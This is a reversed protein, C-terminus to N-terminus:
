PAASPNKLRNLDSNVKRRFNDIADLREKHEKGLRETKVIRTNYRNLKDNSNEVTSELQRIKKDIAAQQNKLNNLTKLQQTLNATMTATQTLKQETSDIFTKVNNLSKTHSQQKAELTEIRRKSKKWVNDWLKRIETDMERIKVKMAVGSESMSEDTVSLRGELESVRAETLQLTQEAMKLRYQLFGALTATLILIIVVTALVLKVQTGSTQVNVDPVEGLRQALSNKGQNRQYSAIEDRAPTIKMSPQPKTKDNDPM